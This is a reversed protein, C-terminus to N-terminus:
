ESRFPNVVKIGPIRSFDKENETYITFISNELMVAAIMADWFPLKYLSMLSLAYEVTDQEAPYCPFKKLLNEAIAMTERVPQNKKRILNAVLENVNQLGLIFEKKRDIGQEVLMSAIM